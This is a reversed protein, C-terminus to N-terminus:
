YFSSGPSWHRWSCTKRARSENSCSQCVWSQRMRLTDGAPFVQIKPVEGGTIPAVPCIKHLFCESDWRSDSSNTGAQRWSISSTRRDSPPASLCFVLLLNSFLWVCSSFRLNNELSTLLLLCFGRVPHSCPSALGNTNATCSWPFTHASLSSNGVVKTDVGQAGGWPAGARESPVFAMEVTQCLM